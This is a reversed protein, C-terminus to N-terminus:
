PTKEYLPYCKGEQLLAQLRSEGIPSHMNDIHSQLERVERYRNGGTPCNDYCCAYEVGHCFREWRDCGSRNSRRRRIDVLHQASSDLHGQAESTKLYVETKSRILELTKSGKKGKWEDLKMRGIGHEVNLRFYETNGQTLDSVTEHTKESDTAWKAAANAYKWYLRYGGKPNHGHELNKGTGISVLVNVAKPNNSCLQKVSRYAEETPNNAGFGGDIFESKEDGGKEEMNYAEFYSPAASTARAVQWILHNNGIDPNRELFWPTRSKPHRYSRMLYPVRTGKVSYKQWAIAIRGLDTHFSISFWYMAKRAVCTRM